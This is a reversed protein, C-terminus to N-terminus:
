SRCSILPPYLEMQPISFADACIGPTIQVYIIHIIISRADAVVRVHLSFTISLCHWAAKPDITPGSFAICNVVKFRGIM